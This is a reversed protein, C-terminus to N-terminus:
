APSSTRAPATAASVPRLAARWAAASQLRCDALFRPLGYAALEVANWQAVIADYRDVLVRSASDLRTCALLGTTTADLAEIHLDPRHERLIPILKWVDGTWHGPYRTPAEVGIRDLPRTMHADRPVTDHLLILSGPRCGREVNIFDRLAFDFRHFGDIFALDVPGGLLAAPDHAAFFADSTTTHLLCLPKGARVDRKIGPAPDVALSACRALELSAGTAVGIELYTRPRLAAHVGALTELYPEGDFWIERGDAVVWGHVPAPQPHVLGRLRAMLSM